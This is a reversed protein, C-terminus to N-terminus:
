VTRPIQLADLSAVTCFKCVREGNVTRGAAGSPVQVRFKFRSGFRFVFRSALVYFQSSALPVYLGDGLSSLGYLRAVATVKSM